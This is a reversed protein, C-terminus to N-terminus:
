TVCSFGQEGFHNRRDQVLVSVASGLADIPSLTADVGVILDKGYYELLPRSEQEYTELRHRIVKENADDFRNDRLARRKLREVLKSRDPCSLHFIKRVRIFDDIAKAQHINRPIGDLVLFDHDPHFAHVEVKQEIRAKWLKMTVDDPVLEGRSSYELFEKGLPTRLDLSRFVDGCAMHYYGPVTGLARGLTGKGSGPAGFILYTQFKNM